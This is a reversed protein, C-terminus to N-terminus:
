SGQAAEGTLGLHPGSAHCPCSFAPLPSHENSAPRDLSHAESSQFCRLNPSVTRESGRGENQSSLFARARKWATPTWGSDIIDMSRSQTEKSRAGENKM